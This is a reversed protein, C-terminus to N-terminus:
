KRLKELAASLIYDKSREILIFYLAIYISLMLQKIVVVFLIFIHKKPWKTHKILDMVYRKSYSHLSNYKVPQIYLHRFM